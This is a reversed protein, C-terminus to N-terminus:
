RRKVLDFLIQELAKDPSFKYNDVMTKEGTTKDLEEHKTGDPVKLPPNKFKAKLHDEIMEGNLEASFVVSLLGKYYNLSHVTFVIGEKEFYREGVFYKKPFSVKSLIDANVSKKYGQEKVIGQAEQALSQNPLDVMVPNIGAGTAVLGVGIGTLKKKM